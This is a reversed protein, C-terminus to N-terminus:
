SQVNTDFEKIIDSFLGFSKQLPLKGLTNNVIHGKDSNFEGIRVLEFQHSAMAFISDPSQKLWTFVLRKAEDVTTALFPALFKNKALDKISFVLKLETSM